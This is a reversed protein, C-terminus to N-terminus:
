LTYNSTINLIYVIYKLYTQLGVIGAMVSFFRIIMIRM